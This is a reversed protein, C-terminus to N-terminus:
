RFRRPVDAAADRRRRRDSDDPLPLLDRNQGLVDVLATRAMDLTAESEPNRLKEALMKAVIFMEIADVVQKADNQTM